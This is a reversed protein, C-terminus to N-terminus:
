LLHHFAFYLLTLALYGIAVVSAIKQKASNLKDYREVICLYRKNAAFILYNLLLILAGFIATGLNGYEPLIFNFDSNTFSMVNTFILLSILSYASWVPNDNEPINILFFKYFKYFILDYVPIKM